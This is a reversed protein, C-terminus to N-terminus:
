GPHCFDDLVAASSMHGYFINLLLHKITSFWFTPPITPTQRIRNSIITRGRPWEFNVSALYASGYFGRLGIFVPHDVTKPYRPEGGFWDVLQSYRTLQTAVSVTEGELLRQSAFSIEEAMERRILSDIPKAPMEGPLHLTLRSVPMETTRLWCRHLGCISVGPLLHQRHWYAEGYRVRDKAVCDDCFRLLHHHGPKGGLFKFQALARAGEGRQIMTSLVGRENASMFATVYPYFTHQLLIDNYPIKTLRSIAELQFPRVHNVKYSGKEFLDHLLMSVSLGTHRGARVLLSGTPEDPYPRPFYM